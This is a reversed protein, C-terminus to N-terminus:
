PSGSSFLQTSTDRKELDSLIMPVLMSWDAVYSKRNTIWLLWQGIEQRKWSLCHHVSITLCYQARCAYWASPHYFSTYLTRPYGHRIFCCLHTRTGTTEPKWCQIVAALVWHQDSAKTRTANKCIGPPNLACQWVGYILDDFYTKATAICLRQRRSTM